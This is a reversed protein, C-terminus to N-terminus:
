TKIVTNTIVNKENPINSHGHAPFNYTCWGSNKSDAM